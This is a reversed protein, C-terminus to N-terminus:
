AHPEVPAAFSKWWWGTRGEKDLRREKYMQLVARQETDAPGRQDLLLM